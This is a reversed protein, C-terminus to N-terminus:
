LTTNRQLPPGKEFNQNRSNYARHGEERQDQSERSNKHSGLKFKTVATRFSSVLEQTLIHTALKVKGFTGKGLNKGFIYSGLKTGAAHPDVSETQVTSKVEPTDVVEKM